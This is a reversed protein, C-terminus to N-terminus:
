NNGPEARTFDAVAQEILGAHAAPDLRADVIKGALEVALSASREALEKLAGATALEIEALARQHEARAEGRAKDVVEQGVQEADRRADELMQRIEGQSAALKQQYEALLERAEVNTKEASAIEDAIRKERKDLGDAIPGWAYKWLVAVLLLFIVATWLALDGKVKLPNIGGDGGGHGGESDAADGHASSSPGAAEVPPAATTCWAILALVVVLCTVVRRSM